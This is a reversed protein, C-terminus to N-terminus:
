EDPYSQIRGPDQAAEARSKFIDSTVGSFSIKSGKLSSGILVRQKQKAMKLRIAKNEAKDKCSRYDAALKRLFFITLTLSLKSLTELHEKGNEM